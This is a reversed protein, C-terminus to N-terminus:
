FARRARHLILFAAFVLIALLAFLFFLRRLFGLVIFVPWGLVHIWTWLSFPSGFGFFILQFLAGIVLYAVALRTILPSSKSPVQRPVAAM